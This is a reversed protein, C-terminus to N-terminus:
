QINVFSLHFYLAGLQPIVGNRECGWLRLRTHLCQTVGGAGIDRKESWGWGRELVCERKDEKLNKSTSYFSPIRSVSPLRSLLVHGGGMISESGPSTRRIRISSDEPDTGRFTAMQPHTLLISKPTLRSQFGARGKGPQNSKPLNRMSKSDMEECSPAQKMLYSHPNLTISANWANIGSDAMYDANAFEGIHNQAFSKAERPRFKVM